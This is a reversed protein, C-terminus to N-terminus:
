RPCKADSPHPTEHLAKQLMGIISDDSLRRHEFNGHRINAITNKINNRLCAIEADKEAISSQLETNQQLIRSLRIADLKSVLEPPFIEEGCEPCKEWTANEVLMIGGPINTPPLFEYRGRRLILVAQCIPCRNISM